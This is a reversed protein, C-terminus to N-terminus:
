IEYMLLINISNGGGEEWDFEEQAGESGRLNMVKERIIITVHM